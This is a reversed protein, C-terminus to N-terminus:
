KVKARQKRWRWFVILVVILGAVVYLTYNSKEVLGKSEAEKKTYVPVILNEEVRYDKNNSDKYNLTVPLLLVGNTMTNIKLEVSEEDDSDLNGIYEYSPSNIQTRDINGLSFSALKVDSLGDNVIRVVIKSELGQILYGEVHLTIRPESEIIISVTGSKESKQGNVFYSIKVPIKYIGSAANPDAILRFIFIEEKNERIKDISQESSSGYPAVPIDKLELAVDVNEADSDLNNEITIYLQAIEGPNVKIPNSSVESITLGSALSVFSALLVILVFYRIAKEM